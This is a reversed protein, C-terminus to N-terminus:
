DPALAEARKAGRERRAAERKHDMRERRHQVSLIWALGAAAALVLLAILTYAIILRPEM